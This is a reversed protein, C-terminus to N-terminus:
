HPNSEQQFCSIRIAQTRDYRLGVLRDPIREGGIVCAPSSTAMGRTAHGRAHFRAVRRRDAVNLWQPIKYDYRLPLFSCSCPFRFMQGIIMSQIGRCNMIGIPSITLALASARTRTGDHVSTDPTWVYLRGGATERCGAPFTHSCSFLM